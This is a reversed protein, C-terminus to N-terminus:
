GAQQNILWGALKSFISDLAYLYVGVILCTIIVVATAQVLAPRTPWQVRKLEAWCERVFAGFGQRETAHGSQSKSPRVRAAREQRRREKRQERTEKQPATDDADAM